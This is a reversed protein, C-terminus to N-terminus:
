GMMDLDRVAEKRNTEILSGLKDEPYTFKIGEYQGVTVTLGAVLM